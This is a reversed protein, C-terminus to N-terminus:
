GPRPVATFPTPPAFGVKPPQSPATAQLEGGGFAVGPGVSLEMQQGLRRAVVYDRSQHPDGAGVSPAASRAGRVEPGSRTKVAM